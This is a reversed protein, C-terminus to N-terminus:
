PAAVIRYISGDGYHVVYLEGEADEGFTSIQLGSQLLETMEWTGAPSQLLGWIRGTCFDGFLYVGVLAPYRSGRYVYGGTISCGLTHDYEVVPLVLGETECGTEPEFCHAGEMIDWGYNEGGPSNAPQVDVEEYRNQGVDAIYLDGTARDFSFRWPNRLGLAWIEPRAGPRDVFPNDAPIAYTEVGAVDIRLMKGLLVGLNQANGWPDGGRGGDGTGIYLYGDPGFQLQGGNHNRAPQDIQLIIQESAPDARRPDGNPARYRAIVTDGRRDTYNVYFLGTTAFDPPFAVSLLGQEAGGSGVRDTIDLFPTPLVEGGEVVRIRGAREVVYVRAPDGAHTLYVPQRFGSFAPELAISPPRTPQSEPPQAQPELTQPQPTATPISTATPPAATPSPAPKESRCANVLLLLGVLILGHIYVPYRTRNM